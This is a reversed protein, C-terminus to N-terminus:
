FHSVGPGHSLVARQCQAKRPTVTPNCVECSRVAAVGVVFPLGQGFEESLCSQASCSAWDM